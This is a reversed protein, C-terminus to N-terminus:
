HRNIVYLLTFLWFWVLDIFHWYLASIQVPNYYNSSYSGRASLWTLVTLLGIGAILHLAHVGTMLWYLFWFIQAQAPLGPKFNRGPVLHEDIDHYYEVGKLALFCCGLFITILLLRVLWKRDDKRVALNALSLTLSSTILIASNITGYLLLTHQGAAVFADPYAYRYVIYAMFLGGFFLVETALFTWMGLTGAELQQEMNDYSVALEVHREAM